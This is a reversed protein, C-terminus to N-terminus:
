AVLNNASPKSCRKSRCKYMLDEKDKKVYLYDDALFILIIFLTLYHSLLSKTTDPSSANEPSSKCSKAKSKTSVIHVCFLTHM